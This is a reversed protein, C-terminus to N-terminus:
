YELKNIAVPPTSGLPMMANIFYVYDFTKIDQLSIERVSIVGENILRQRTTGNLLPELPTYLGSCNEFVLNALSSDTVKNNKIIVVDDNTGALLKNIQSRDYYKYNYSIRDDRIIKVKNRVIPNYPLVSIQLKINGYIIRCRCIESTLSYSSFPILVEKIDFSPLNHKKLTQDVRAQHYSLNAFGEKTLRITELFIPQYKM